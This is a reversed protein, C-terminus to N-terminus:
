NERFSKQSCCKFKTLILKQPTQLIKKRLKCRKIYSVFWLISFNFNVCLNYMPLDSFFITKWFLFSVLFKAPILIRLNQLYGTACYHEFVLNRLISLFKNCKWNKKLIEGTLLQFYLNEWREKFNHKSTYWSKKTWSFRWGNLFLKNGTIISFIITKTCTYKSITKAIRRIQCTLKVFDLYSSNWIILNPTLNSDALQVYCSLKLSM